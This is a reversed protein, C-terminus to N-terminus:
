SNILVETVKYYSNNSQSYDVNVKWIAVAKGVVAADTDALLLGVLLLFGVEDLFFVAILDAVSVVLIHAFFLVSYELLVSLYSLTVLIM